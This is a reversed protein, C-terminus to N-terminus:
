SRDLLRELDSLRLIAYDEPNRNDPTDFTVLLVALLGKKEAVNNLQALWSRQLRMSQSVTMKHEAIWSGFRLDYGETRVPGDGVRGFKTTRAGSRITPRGGLRDALRKEAAVSRRKREGAQAGVSSDLWRPVPSM